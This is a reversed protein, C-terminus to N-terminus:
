EFYQALLDTKRQIKLLFVTGANNFENQCPFHIYRYTHVRHEGFSQAGNSVLIARLRAASISVNELDSM